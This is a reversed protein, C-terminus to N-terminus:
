NEQNVYKSPRNFFEAYIENSEMLRGSLTQLKIHDFVNPHWLSMCIVMRTRM